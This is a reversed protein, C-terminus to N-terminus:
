EQARTGIIRQQSVLDVRTDVFSFPLNYNRTVRPRQLRGEDTHCTRQCTLEPGTSATGVPVEWSKTLLAVLNPPFNEAISAHEEGRLAGTGFQLSVEPPAQVRGLSPLDIMAAVDSMVQYLNAQVVGPRGAPGWRVRRKAPRGPPVEEGRRAPRHECALQAFCCCRPQRASAPDPEKGAADSDGEGGGREDETISEEAPTESKDGGEAAADEIEGKGPETPNEKTSPGGGPAAQSFDEDSAGVFPAADEEEEEEKEEEQAPQGFTVGAADGATEEEEEEEKQGTAEYFQDDDDEVEAAEKGQTSPFYRLLGKSGRPFNNEPNDACRAPSFAVKLRLRGFRDPVSPGFFTWRRMVSRESEIASRSTLCLVRPVFIKTAGNERGTNTHGHRKIKWSYTRSPLDVQMSLKYVYGVPGEVFFDLNDTNANYQGSFRFVVGDAWAHIFLPPLADGDQMLPPFVFYTSVKGDPAETEYVRKERNYTIQSMRSRSM